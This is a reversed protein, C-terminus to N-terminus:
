EDVEAHRARKECGVYVVRGARAAEDVPRGLGPDLGEGVPSVLAGAAGEAARELPM